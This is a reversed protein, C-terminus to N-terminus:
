ARFYLTGTNSDLVLADDSAVNAPFGAPLTPTYDVDDVMDRLADLLATRSIAVWEMNGNVQPTVTVFQGNSAAVPPTTPVSVQLYQRPDSGKVYLVRFYPSARDDIEVGLKAGDPISARFDERIMRWTAKKSAKDGANRAARLSGAQLESIFAYAM